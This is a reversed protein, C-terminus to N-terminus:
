HDDSSSRSTSAHSGRPTFLDSRRAPGGPRRGIDLEASHLCLRRIHLVRAFRRLGLFRAALSEGSEERGEGAQLCRPPGQSQSQCSGWFGGRQAVRRTESSSNGFCPRLPFPSVACSFAVEFLNLRLKSASFVASCYDDAAASQCLPLGPEGSRIRPVRHMRGLRHLRQVPTKIRAPWPLTKIWARRMCPLLGYRLLRQLREHPAEASSFRDSWRPRM